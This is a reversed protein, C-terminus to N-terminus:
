QEGKFASVKEYDKNALIKAKKENIEVGGFSYHAGLRYKLYEEKGAIELVCREASLEVWGYDVDEVIPIRMHRDIHCMEHTAINRILVGSYKLVELSVYVTFEYEDGYEVFYVYETGVKKKPREVWAPACDVGLNSTVLVKFSNKLELVESAKKAALEFENLKYSWGFPELHEAKVIKPEGGCVITRQSDESAFLEGPIILILFLLTLIHM